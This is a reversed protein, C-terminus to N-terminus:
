RMNRMLFILVKPMRDTDILFGKLRQKMLLSMEYQTLKAQEKRAENVDGKKSPRGKRLIVPRMLTLSTFLDPMGLGWKKSVTEVKEFDGELMGRWIFVWERKFDEPVEVYLGHDILVLQPHGPRSPDPRIIVNGPHPDCHVWGWEFMQASFLEVMTQMVAKMGGKLPAPLNLPLHPYSSTSRLCSPLLDLPPSALHSPPEDVSEGMLHRVATRDSLRVGEM